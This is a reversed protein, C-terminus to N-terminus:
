SVDRVADSGPDGVVAVVLQEGSGLDSVFFELPRYRPNIRVDATQVMETIMRKTAVTQRVDQNTALQERIEALPVNVLGKALARDYIDQLEADTPQVQAPNPIGFLCSYATLRVKYYETDPLPAISKRQEDSFQFGAFEEKAQRAACLRGLVVTLVTDTRAPASLGAKVDATVNPDDKVKAIETNVGAILEDIEKETIQESGVYAAVGPDDACATLALGCGLALAVVARRGAILGGQM